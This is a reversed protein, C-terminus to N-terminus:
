RSLTLDGAKSTLGTPGGFTSKKEVIAVRAGLQAARVAASEGAPGSGIVVLDFYGDPPIEPFSSQSLDPLKYGIPKKAYLRTRPNIRSSSRLQLGGREVLSMPSLPHTSKPCVPTSTYHFAHVSSSLCFLLFYMMIVDFKNNGSSLECIYLRILCIFVQKFVFSVFSGALSVM